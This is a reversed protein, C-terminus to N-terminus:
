ASAALLAEAERIFRTVDVSRFFSLAHRLQDDAEARRGTRALEQAARRRALAASRAAGMSDLSEAAAVFERDALERVAVYWPSHRWTSLWWRAEDRRGLIEAALVCDTSSEDLSGLDVVSIGFLESLIPQAEDARGALALVYASGALAPILAQPDKAQRGSILSERQDQLAAETDGRALRIWSRCRLIVSDYYYPGLAASEALFEDAAPACKDWDGLEFWLNTLVGRTWRVTAKTGVRRAVKEAKLALRLAEPLDGDDKQAGSLNVYGREAAALLNGALAIELGRRIDAKGQPDGAVARVTGATILVQVRIEDLGLQEALELAEQAIQADFDDALMRFRALASLVYAKAASAPEDVVLEQARGLHEFARDRDGKYWWLEGLRAEAEASGARDGAAALASRARELAAGDGDEGAGGLALALRFLLGARQGTADQPWLGLAARYFGAAATFANLALARDGAGELASRARPALDGADQNAARALELASLYHHALMEAHDDTRGLSDIWGATHLHQGVRAARPIQGYAVDRM